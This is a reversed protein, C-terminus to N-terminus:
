ILKDSKKIEVLQKLVKYSIYFDVELNKPFSSFNDCSFIGDDCYVEILVKNRKTIKFQTKLIFLFLIAQSEQEPVNDM